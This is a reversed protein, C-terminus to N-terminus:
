SAPEFLPLKFGDEDEHIVVQVPLGIRCDEPKCNVLSSAIREGEELDIIAAMIPYDYGPFQPHHIVTYTHVTGKGSAAIHDFGQAGCSDCMPRPPHRLKGCDTCRQIPLISEDRVLEWWWGNDHAMPPKIRSPKQQTAQADDGGAAAQEQAPKYKLVRFTMWGVSEGKQDTFRTRTTIFYGIGVGTAKEESIEEIVTEATVVDGLKLYREYHEETNTGLVGTYGHDNFLKHLRHQEDRPEDYGVHMEWGEMTWAQLMTPPAVVEGHRTAQASDAGVYAPHTEGMADCWQRIMPLNVPDRAIAPPGIAKGVYSRVEAEFAEKKAANM